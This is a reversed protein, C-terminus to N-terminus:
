FSQVRWMERHCRWLLTTSKGRREKGLRVVPKNKGKTDARGGGYVRGGGGTTPPFPVGEKGVM